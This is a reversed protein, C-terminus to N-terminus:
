EVKIRLKLSPSGKEAFRAVDQQMMDLELTYEGPTEPTHIPLNIETQEGPKLDAPLPVRVDDRPLAKVNQASWRAALSVQYKQEATAPWTVASENRVRVNVTEEKGAELFLPPNEVSLRAKFAADPLPGITAARSYGPPAPQASRSCAPMASLSLLLLSLKLALRLASERESLSVFIQM